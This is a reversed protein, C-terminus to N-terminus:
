VAENSNCKVIYDCFERVAGHGGQEYCIYDVHNKIEKMADSPCASLGCYEICEIDNCDDGIYAIEASSIGYINAINKLKELKNDVGQHLEKIQLEEARKKVIQSKRGTIIVSLIGKKSLNVIGYGDKVDFAKMVEGQNGIYISGDTLTGDVDMALMRIKM